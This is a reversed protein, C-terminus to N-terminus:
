KKCDNSCSDDTTTNGDDCEEGADVVSNGCVEIKCAANCGDGPTTNGDDCTESLDTDTIGDGCVPEPIEIKCNNSCGDNNRM